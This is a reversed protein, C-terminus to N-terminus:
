QQVEQSTIRVKIRVVNDSRLSREASTLSKATRSHSNHRQCGGASKMDKARSETNVREIGPMYPSYVEPTKALAGM